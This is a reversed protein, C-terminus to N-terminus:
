LPFTSQRSTPVHMVLAAYIRADKIAIITYSDPKEINSNIRNAPEKGSTVKIKPPIPTNNPHQCGLWDNEKASLM